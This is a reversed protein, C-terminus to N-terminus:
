RKKGTRVYKKVDQVQKLDLPQTPDALGQRWFPPKDPPTPLGMAECAQKHKAKKEAKQQAAMEQMKVKGAARANAEAQQGVTTIARTTAQIGGSYVQRYKTSRCAPCRQPFPDAMSQTFEREAGCKECCFHYTPM